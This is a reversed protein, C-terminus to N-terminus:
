SRAEESAFVVSKPADASYDYFGAVVTPIEPFSEGLAPSPTQWELGRSNWPNEQAKEGKVWCYIIYAINYLFGIGLLFAFISVEFNQAQLYQPYVPVWRNMGRLGLIFFQFFTANFAIFIWYAGLQGWKDNYTRGSFKPLYYYMAAFSSFVMGGIITFHFHGVVFFTNHLQMNVMPDAVFVGTLGGILFNFMSMLILLTPTNMKIKARWITGIAVMFAFGTPISIMETFFSIPLITQNQQTPFMHHAWVMGSLIMVFVIGIVGWQRAFLTKRGLVPLLEMWLALAPLVVIYVEPHGFLWFQQLYTLPSGTAQFFPLPVIKDLLGMVFTMIIEPIWIINLFSVALMAWAYMPLRNWTLGPARRYIITAVLNVAVIFSSMLLIFVGLYYFIIGNGDSSTLPEYGRWGSTWTGLLPSLAVTMIGFPVFWVSMGSIRSFASNNSGVMMPILYNGLGGVMFVTAVSFMMITGHVGVTTLYDKSYTFLWMHDEMLQLRMLMAAIGAILFGGLSSVMYQLGIVKHDTSYEFYRRWGVTEKWRLPYGFAPKVVAEWTGIGFTWAVAAAAWAFTMAVPGFFQHRAYPHIYGVLMDVFLFAVLAWVLGRMVPPWRRYVGSSAIGTETSLQPM